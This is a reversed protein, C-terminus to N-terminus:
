IRMLGIADRTARCKWFRFKEEIVEETKSELKRSLIHATTKGTHSILGIRTHDSCKKAQNKKPLAIITVNLSKKPLDGSMYIKNVMIKLGSEGLEKLLDLPTNNDGTAKKKM